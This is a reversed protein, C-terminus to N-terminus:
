NATRQITIPQTLVTEDYKLRLAVNSSSGADFTITGSNTGSGGSSLLYTASDETSIDIPCSTDTYIGGFELQTGFLLEPTSITVQTGNVVSNVFIIANYQTSGSGTVEFNLSQASGSLTIEGAAKTITTGEAIGCATEITGATEQNLLLAALSNDSSGGDCNVFQLLTTTLFLLTLLNKNM